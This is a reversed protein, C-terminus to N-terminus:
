YILFSGFEPVFNGRVTSEIEIFSLLFGKFEIVNEVGRGRLVDNEIL